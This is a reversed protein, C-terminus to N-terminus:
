VGEANGKVSQYFAVIEERRAECDAHAMDFLKRFQVADGSFRKVGVEESPYVYVADGNEVCTDILRREEYYVDKRAEFDEILKKRRFYVLNLAAKLIGGQPKRVYERSKTTVVLHKSCGFDISRQLPIMTTIGGDMYKKGDIKVARGALPLTCAAKIYNPEKALDEKRKWVTKEEYIDYVGVELTAAVKDIDKIPYDYRTLLSQILFDYGVFTGERLMPLWGINRRDAALECAAQELTDAKDLVYMSAYLAGSSIGVVYDFHLDNKLLWHLVGATYAGRLGGGELVLGIKEM